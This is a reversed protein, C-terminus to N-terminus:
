RPRRPRRADPSRGTTPGPIGPQRGPPRAPVGAHVVGAPVAGTAVSGAEIVAGPSLRAGAEVCARAGLITGAGVEVPATRTPELRVPREVDDGGPTAIDTLMVFDGARVGPGVTIRERARVLCCRGLVADEGIRVEGTPVDFRTGEDIRCGRELVVRAGPGVDFRVDRAVRASPHADVGAPPRRRVLRRLHAALRM